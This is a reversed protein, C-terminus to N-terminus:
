GDCAIQQAKLTDRRAKPELRALLAASLATARRL